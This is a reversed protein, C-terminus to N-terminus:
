LAEIVGNMFDKQINYPEFPFYVEIDKLTIKTSSKFTKEDLSLLSVDNNLM